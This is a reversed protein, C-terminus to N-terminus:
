IDDYELQVEAQEVFGLVAELRGLLHQVANRRCLGDHEGFEVLCRRLVSLHSVCFLVVFFQHHWRWESMTSQSFWAAPGASANKRSASMYMEYVDTSLKDSSSRNLKAVSM